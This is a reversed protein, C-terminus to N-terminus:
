LDCGRQSLFYSNRLLLGHLIQFLQCVQRVLFRLVHERQRAEALQHEDVAGRADTAIWGRAFLNLNGGLPDHLEADGFGGFFRNELLLQKVPLNASPSTASSWGKQKEVPFANACEIKRFGESVKSRPCPFWFPSCDHSSEVAFHRDNRARGLADTLPACPNQRPFSGSDDYRIDIFCRATVRGALDFLITTLRDKDAAIDRLDRIHLPHGICRHFPEAADVGDDVVRAGVVAFANLSDIFLAPVKQEAEVEAALEKEHFGRQRLQFLRFTGDDVDTGHDANAALLIRRCVHRRLRSRDSKGLRQREIQTRISNPDVAYAGSRAISGQEALPEIRLRITVLNRLPEVFLMREFPHSLGFVDALGHCEERAIVSREDGAHYQGHVATKRQTISPPSRRLAEARPSAPTARRCSTCAWSSSCRASGAGCM